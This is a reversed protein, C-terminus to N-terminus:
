DKELYLKYENIAKIRKERLEEFELYWLLKKAKYIYSSIEHQFEENKKQGSCLTLAKTLRVISNKVRKKDKSQKALLALIQGSLLHAKINNSDLEIAEQADKLAEEYKGM